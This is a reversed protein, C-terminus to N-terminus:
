VLLIILRKVILSIYSAFLYSPFNLGLLIETPLVFLRHYKKTYLM